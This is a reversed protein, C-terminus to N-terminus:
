HEALDDIAGDLKVNPEFGLPINQEAALALIAGRVGKGWEARSRAGYIATRIDKIAGDIDDVAVLLRHKLEVRTHVLVGGEGHGPGCVRDDSDGRVAVEM